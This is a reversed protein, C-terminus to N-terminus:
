SIAYPKLLKTQQTTNSKSYQKLFTIMEETSLTNNSHTFQTKFLVDLVYKKLENFTKPLENQFNGQCLSGNSSVNPLLCQYLKKGQKFFLTISLKQKTLKFGVHITPVKISISTQESYDAHFHLTRKRSYITFDGKVSESLISLNSFGKPIDGTINVTKAEPLPIETNKLLSEFQSYSLKSYPQWSEKNKASFLIQFRNQFEFVKFRICENPSM